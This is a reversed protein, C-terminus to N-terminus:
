SRQKNQKFRNVSASVDDDENVRCTRQRSKRNRKSNRPEEGNIDELSIDKFEPLEAIMNFNEGIKDIAVDLDSKNTNIENKLSKLEEGVGHLVAPLNRPNHASKEDGLSAILTSLKKEIDELKAEIGTNKKYSYAAVALILVTNTISLIMAPQKVTEM